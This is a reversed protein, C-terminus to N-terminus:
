NNYVCKFGYERMTVGDDKIQYDFYPTPRLTEFSPQDYVIAYAQSNRGCVKKMEFASVRDLITRVDGDVDMGNANQLMRLRMERLESSGLLIEVRVMTGHYEQWKTEKRSTNWKTDKEAAEVATRPRYGDLDAYQNDAGMNGAVRENYYPATEGGYQFDGTDYPTDTACAALAIPFMFLLLKKM